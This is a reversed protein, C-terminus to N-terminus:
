YEEASVSVIQSGQSEVVVVVVVVLAVLEVKM